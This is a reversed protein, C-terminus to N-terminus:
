SVDNSYIGRVLLQAAGAVGQYFIEFVREVCDLTRPITIVLLRSEM